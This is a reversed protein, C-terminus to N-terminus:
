ATAPQADEQHWVLLRRRLRAMTTVVGWGIAMVEIIGAFVDPSNLQRSAELMAAGLGDGGMMMEAVIEVILATPLAVQLGTIIQPLAAPIMIEGAVHWDTAGFSRASWILEREVGQLGAVTATIIPFVATVAIITIKSADFLGFWLIFVPLFAIKPMPLGISVLPDFFWRVWANRMMLLGLTVGAVAAIAFGVFTRYLTAIANQLFDGSMVDAILRAVVTDPSPLMFASFYGARTAFEWCLLILVPTILPAVAWFARRMVKAPSTPVTASPEDVAIRAM